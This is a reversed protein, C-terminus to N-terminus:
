DRFTTVELGKRCAKCYRVGEDIITEAHPCAIKQVEHFLDYNVIINLHKDSEDKHEYQHVLQNVTIFETDIERMDHFYEMAAMIEQKAAENPVIIKFETFKVKTIDDKTGPKGDIGYGYDEYRKMRKEPSIWKPINKKKM